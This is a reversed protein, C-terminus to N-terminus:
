LNEVTKLPKHATAINVGDGSIYGLIPKGIPKDDKERYIDIKIRIAKDDTIIIDNNNEDVNYPNNKLWAIAIAVLGNEEMVNKRTSGLYDRKEKSVNPSMICSTITGLRNGDKYVGCGVINGESIVIVMRKNNEKDKLLANKGVFDDKNMDIAADFLPANTPTHNPGYENGM